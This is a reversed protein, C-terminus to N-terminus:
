EENQKPFWPKVGDSRRVLTKGTRHDLLLTGKDSLEYRQTDAQYRQTDAQYRVARTHGSWCSAMIWTIILAVALTILWLWTRSLTFQLNM